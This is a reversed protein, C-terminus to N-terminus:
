ILKIRILLLLFLWAPFSIRYFLLASNLYLFIVTSRNQFKFFLFYCPSWRFVIWSLVSLCRFWFSICRLGLCFKNVFLIISHGIKNELNLKQYYEQQITTSTNTTTTTTTNTEREKERQRERNIFSHFKILRDFCCVFVFITEIKM